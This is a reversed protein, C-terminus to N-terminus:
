RRRAHDLLERPENSEDRFRQLPVPRFGLPDESLSDPSNIQRSNQVSQNPHKLRQEETMKFGTFTAQSSSPENQTPGSRIPRQRAVTDIGREEVLELLSYLLAVIWFAKRAVHTCQGIFVSKISSLLIEATLEREVSALPKASHHQYQCNPEHVVAPDIMSAPLSVVRLWILM